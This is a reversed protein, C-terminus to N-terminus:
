YITHTHLIHLQQGLSTGHSCVPILHVSQPLPSPAHVTQLSLQGAAFLSQVIDVEVLGSNLHGSMQRIVNYVM